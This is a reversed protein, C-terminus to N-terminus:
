CCFLLCVSCSEVYFSVYRLGSSVPKGVPVTVKEPIETHTGPDPHTMGLAKTCHTGAPAKEMYQDSTLENLKGLAVEALLM